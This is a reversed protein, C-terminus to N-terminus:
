PNEVQAFISLLQITCSNSVFTKYSQGYGYNLGNYPFINHCFHGYFFVDFNAMFVCLFCM